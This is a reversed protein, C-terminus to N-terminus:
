RRTPSRSGVEVDKGDVAVSMGGMMQLTLGTATVIIDADLHEGSALQVGSETFPEIKDTVISATRKRLARFLDRDPLVCFRQDWPNYPPTFHTGVDVHDPLQKETMRLLVRKVLKPRRKSLQFFGVQVAVNKWRTISYALRSPLVKRLGNAVPDESPLSAMYTPTRQLMTVHAARDTMAPVLTVATAGSGIVVVRKGAYDLDEPWQQPHIITGKFRESGPFEPKFPNDYSYYGTCGLLFGATFTVTEGTDTREATVTWRADETSWEAGLVKHNFRIHADSGDERATERVYNLIRPGDAIAKDEIWPKFIYGLTHMDSDSRIGPYRFLDWTGGIADRTELIAYSKGPHKDQLHHAAGIGSLGAGVILVDM